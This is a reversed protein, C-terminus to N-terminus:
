QIGFLQFRNKVCSIIFDTGIGIAKYNHVM